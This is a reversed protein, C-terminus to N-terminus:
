RSWPRRKRRHETLPVVLRTVVPEAKDPDDSLSSLERMFATTDSQNDAATAGSPNVVSLAPPPSDDVLTLAPAPGTPVLALAPEAPPEVLALAPAVRSRSLPIRM